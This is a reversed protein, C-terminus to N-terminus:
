RDGDIDDRYVKHCVSAVQLCIVHKVVYIELDSFLISYWQSFYALINHAQM